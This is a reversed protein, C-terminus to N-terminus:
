IAGGEEEGRSHKGTPPTHLFRMSRNLIKHRVAGIPLLAPTLLPTAYPSQQLDFEAATVCM